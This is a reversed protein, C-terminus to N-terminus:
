EYNGSVNCFFLSVRIYKQQLFIWNLVINKGIQFINIFISGM